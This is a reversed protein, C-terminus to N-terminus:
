STSWRGPPTMFGSRSRIMGSASAKTRANKSLPLGTATIQWPGHVSMSAPTTRLRRRVDQGDTQV